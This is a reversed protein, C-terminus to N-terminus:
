LEFATRGGSNVFEQLLKRGDGILPQGHALLVHEFELEDLVHRYADLLRRKTEPPEDMLSDPVFGLQADDGGRVVGDAFAIAGRSAMYLATEDPCLGGIEHALIRGPLEDGPDFATVPRDDAFEHLGSRVCYVPVEFRETLPGSHRYHHRNSLVIATPPQARRAFWELGEDPPLLPDILVGGDELWYSSVEIGINPHVATWHFVGPLIERV